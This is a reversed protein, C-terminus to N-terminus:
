FQSVLSIFLRTVTYDPGRLAGESRQDIYAATLSLGFNRSILYTGGLSGSVRKDTRDIGNFDDDSYGIRSSLILNRLLEHDISVAVESRFYGASGIIGADDITRAASATITTLETPFYEIQARAGFGDIDAYSADDFKQSIYGVAVEGRSVAGLEFNVGGLAEYGTSDRGVFGTPVNGYSRENGTVQAFVATAPSIAYDVRGVLSAVDRDRDDQEIVFGGATRGDEYDFSRIDARAGLKLRGVVRSGAVYAQAVDFDIPDVAAQATNSSTRPEVSHSYDAGGTINTGRMVDLRGNGGLSWENASESDFDVNRSLTARAFGALYNRSWGSEATVEPRLRFIFDDQANTESAFVNDNYEVDAQLKPFILFGGAPVGSAEYDPRPRERVGIARDRAFLDTSRAQGASVSQALTPSAAAGIGIAAISALSARVLYVSANKLM